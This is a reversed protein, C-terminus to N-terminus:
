PSGIQRRKLNDEVRKTLVDLHALIARKENKVYDNKDVL